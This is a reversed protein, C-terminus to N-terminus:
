GGLKGSVGKQHLYGREQSPVATHPHGRWAIAPRGMGVRQGLKLVPDTL